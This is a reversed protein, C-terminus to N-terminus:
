TVDVLDDVELSGYGEICLYYGEAKKAAGGAINAISTIDMNHDQRLPFFFAFGTWVVVRNTICVRYRSYGIVGYQLKLDMLAQNMVHRIADRRAGRVVRPDICRLLDKTDLGISIQDRLSIAVIRLEKNILEIRM